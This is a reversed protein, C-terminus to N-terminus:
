DTKVTSSAIVQISILLVLQFDSLKFYIKSWKAYVRRVQCKLLMHVKLIVVVKLLYKFVFIVYSVLFSM